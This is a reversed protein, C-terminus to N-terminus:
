LHVLDPGEPDLRESRLPVVVAKGEMSNLTSVIRIGKNKTKKNTKAPFKVLVTFTAVPGGRERRHGGRKKPKKKKKLVTHVKEPVYVVETVTSTERNKM